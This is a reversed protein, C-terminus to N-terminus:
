ELTEITLKSCTIAPQTNRKIVIINLVAIHNEEFPQEMSTKYKNQPITSQPIPLRDLLKLGKLALGVFHDFVNLCNQTHKVM